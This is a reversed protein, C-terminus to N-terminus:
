PEICSTRECILERGLSSKVDPGLRAQLSQNSVRTKKAQAAREAHSEYEPESGYCPSVSFGTWAFNLLFKRLAPPVQPQKRESNKHQAHFLQFFFALFRSVQFIPTFEARGRTRVGGRDFPHPSPSWQCPRGCPKAAMSCSAKHM